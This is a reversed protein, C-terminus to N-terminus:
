VITKLGLGALFDYDERKPYSSRYVGPTVVGFNAPRGSLPPLVFKTQHATVCVVSAPALAMSNTPETEDGHIAARAIILFKGASDCTRSSGVVVVVEKGVTISGPARSIMISEGVSTSFRLSQTEDAEKVVAMIDEKPGTRSNRRPRYATALAKLQSDESQPM